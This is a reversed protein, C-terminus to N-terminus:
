YFRTLTVIKKFFWIDEHSIADLNNNSTSREILSLNISLKLTNYLHLILFNPKLIRFCRIIFRSFKCKMSCIPASIIRHSMWWNGILLNKVINTFFHKFLNILSEIGGDKCISLCSCSFWERDFSFYRM